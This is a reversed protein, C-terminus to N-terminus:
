VCADVDTITKHNMGGGVTNRHPHHRHVRRPRDVVGATVSRSTARRSQGRIKSAQRNTASSIPAAARDPLGTRSPGAAGACTTAGASPNTASRTASSRVTRSSLRPPAAVSRKSDRMAAPMSAATSSTTANQPVSQDCSMKTTAAPLSSCNGHRRLRPKADCHASMAAIVTTSRTSGARRVTTPWRITNAGPAACM